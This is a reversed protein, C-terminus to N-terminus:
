LLIKLWLVTGNLGWLGLLSTMFLILSIAFEKASTSFTFASRVMCMPGSNISILILIQKLRPCNVRSSFSTMWNSSEAILASCLITCRINISALDAQTIEANRKFVFTSTARRRKKWISRATVSNSIKLKCSPKRCM